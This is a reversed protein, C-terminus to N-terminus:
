TTFRGVWEASHFCFGLYSDNVLAIEAERANAQVAFTAKGDEFNPMNLAGGGIISGRQSPFPRTKVISSGPGYPRVEARFYATRSFYVSMEKLQLRGTLVADGRANQMFQKSFVFRSTFVFGCILMYPPDRVKFTTEDVWELIRISEGTTPSIARFNPRADENVTYPLTVSYGDANFAIEVSSLPEHVHRRDLHVEYQMGPAQVSVLPIREITTVYEGQSVIYHRMLAYLYAGLPHVAVVETDPGYLRQNGFEWYHWASQAKETESQWYYKYLYIRNRAGATLLFVVDFESSATVATIGYPVYQSAHASVDSADNTIGDENVFYERLKGYGSSHSPFYIDSGAAAPRVGAVSPYRTTVDLSVSSGALVDRHSLKFQTQDAFLMMSGQMPVAFEMKAVNTESAAVDIVEDALYDVVTLRHFVGFDGARSMVVNEDVCFGLRNRHFFMDRIARNVFSPHPNSKDDGVHRPTWGFPGFVFTGDAQRILAFPMTLPDFMNQLGPKVCEYWGGNQFMVYYSAFDSESNGIIKWVDGNVNGSAPLDQLTQKEGKYTGAPNSDPDPDPNPNPTGPPPTNGGGGGGFGGGGGGGDDDPLLARLPATPPPNRNLWWYDGTPPDHDAGVPLLGVRKTKNLVFTYDAVTMCTYGAAPTIGPALSLYDWGLPASVAKETGQLDFVRVRTGDIIVFYREVSDRNIVHFYSGTGLDPLTALHETGARKSVGDIVSSWCNVQEACQSPLRVPDPQQSVGNWLAPIQRTVRM